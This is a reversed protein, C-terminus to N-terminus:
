VKTCVAYLLVLLAFADEGCDHRTESAQKDRRDSSNGAVGKLSKEELCAIMAQISFSICDIRGKSM